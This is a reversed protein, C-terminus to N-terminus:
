VKWKKYYKQVRKDTYFIAPNFSMLNLGDLSRLRSLAVYGQGCEWIKKDLYLTAQSLSQGQSKHITIAYCLILPYQVMVLEEDKNNDTITDTWVKPMIKHIIGDFDVVIEDDDTFGKVIGVQGNVLQKEGDNVLHMVPCNVKLTLDSEFSCSKHIYSLLHEKQKNYKYQAVFLKEDNNNENMYQKNIKTAQNKLPVLIPYTLKGSVHRELLKVYKEKLEKGRRIRKLISNLKKDSSRYSTTLNIGYDFLSEWGEYKFAFDGEVPPLQYFDGVIILQIGGFPKNNDRIHKGIKDLYEIMQSNLLSIEDIILINTKIWFYRRKSNKVRTLIKDFKDDKKVVNVGSVSHITKGGILKSALGTSATVQIKLDPENEKIKKIFTNVTHTKGSGPPGTLFVNKQSMLHEIAKTGDLNVYLM